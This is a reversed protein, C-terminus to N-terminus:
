ISTYGGDVLILQGTILDSAPALLFRVTGLVDKPEGFRGAPIRPLNQGVFDPDTFMETTMPTSVFTPGVANVGIGHPALEIAFAKAMQAAGAKTIAYISRDRMAVVALQSAINVIRGSGQSVMHRAVAQTCFFVGRLNVAQIKDWEDPTYELVPKRINIGANNVLFNIRGFTDVARDAMADISATDTVDVPIFMARRGQDTIATVVEQARESQSPLDAVIIDAGADALGLALVRGIGNASGTVIGAQGDLRYSVSESM